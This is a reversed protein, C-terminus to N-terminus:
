DGVVRKFFRQGRYNFIAGDPTIRELKLGAAIEQGELKKSGNLNIWRNEPSQSYILISIFLNPIADRIESTLEHWKPIASVPPAGAPEELKAFDQLDSVIGDSARTQPPQEVSGPTKKLDAPQKSVKLGHKIGAAKPDQTVKSADPKQAATGATGSAGPAASSPQAAAQNPLHTGTRQAQKTEPNKITDKNEGAGERITGRGPAGTAVTGPPRAADTSQAAGETKGVTAPSVTQASNEAPQAISTGNRNSDTNGNRHWHRMWFAFIVANLLFLLAIIYPWRAVSKLPPMSDPSEGLGLVKRIERANESKKKLADLIYSM